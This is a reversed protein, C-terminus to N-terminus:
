GHLGAPFVVDGDDQSMQANRLLWGGGLELRRVAELARGGLSDRCPPLKRYYSRRGRKM